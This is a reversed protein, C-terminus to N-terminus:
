SPQEAQGGPSAESGTIEQVAIQFVGSRSPMPDESRFTEPIVRRLLEIAKRRADLESPAGEAPLAYFGGHVLVTRWHFLDEVEDVQFAVPWWGHWGLMSQKRSRRMRGYVWGESYAYYVPFIGISNSRAYAIRGVHNRAIIAECEDRDLTRFQPRSGAEAAEGQSKVDEPARSM